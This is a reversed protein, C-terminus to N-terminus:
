SHRAYAVDQPVTHRKVGEYTLNLGAGDRELYKVVRISQENHRFGDPFVENLAREGPMGLRLTGM